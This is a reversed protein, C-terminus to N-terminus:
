VLEYGCNLQCSFLNMTYKIDAYEGTQINKFRPHKIDAENARLFTSRTFVRYRPKKM